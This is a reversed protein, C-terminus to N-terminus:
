YYYIPTFLILLFILISQLISISIFNLHRRRSSCTSSLSFFFFLFNVIILSSLTLLSILFLPTTPPPPTPPPTTTHHLIPNCGADDRSYGVPRVSCWPTVMPRSPENSLARCPQKAGNGSTHGVGDAHQQGVYDRGGNGKEAGQKDQYPARLVAAYLFGCFCRGSFLSRNVTRPLIGRPKKKGCYKRLARENFGNYM